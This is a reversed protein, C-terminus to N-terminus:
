WTPRCGCASSAHAHRRPGAPRRPRGRRQGPRPRRAAPRPGARAARAIGRETVDAVREIGDRLLSVDNGPSPPSCTSSPRRSSRTSAASPASTSSASPATPSSSCTARSAPRRPLLRGAAGPRADLAAAPRRAGAPRHGLRRAARRRQRTCGEFREQVLLRRTLLERHVRPIRVPSRDALLSRCRRWPTPRAASTSSPGCASPSSPSWRARGCRGPRAAHAAPRRRRGAVPRRPRAGHRGRDRPAPGERGGREGTRLRARHTQGISAAALPEWDFEAFVEDVPPASSPRSCPRSRRARSPRCTTRSSPSSTPSTPPCWTSGPPPSRASSSTCAAPRRSCRASGSERPGDTSSARCRAARLGRPSAPRAARPLPPVRRHPAARRLVRDRPSSWGPGSAWPWRARGPSSTSAPRGVAM